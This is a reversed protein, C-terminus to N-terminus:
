RVIVKETFIHQGGASVQLLYIGPKLIGNVNIEKRCDDSCHITERFVCVGALDRITIERADNGEPWEIMEVNLNGESIPNPYARIGAITETEKASDDYSRTFPSLHSGRIPRELTGDPMLWGVSVHDTGIGQKHLVEVYYSVGEVLFIPQSHQRTVRDWERYETARDLHAIREINEPENNTSLWLESHDNSAIWFVYEGTQPPCIYGSIRAGYNIGANVPGEFSPLSESGDPSAELPIESTLNGRVDTWYERTITGSSECVLEDHFPLINTRAIPAEFIGSPLQWAVTFHDTGMGQKHLAEIYYKKGAELQISGSTQSAYKSWEDPETFGKIWAIRYKSAPNEDSGIWLESHDNSTISFRYVGSVSPRIYGRIRAGYNNGSNPPSAFTEIRERVDPEQNFPISLVDRGNIDHWVERVLYHETLSALVDIILTVKVVEQAPDNTKFLIEGAILGESLTSDVRITVGLPSSTIVGTAPHIAAISAIERSVEAKYSVSNVGENTLQITHVSSTGAISQVFVTDPCSFIAGSDYKIISVPVIMPEEQFDAHIYITDEFIGPPGDYQIEVVGDERVNLIGSSPSVSLGPLDHTFSLGIATGGDNRILLESTGIEDKQLIMEVSSLDIQYSTPGPIDLMVPIVLSDADDLYVTLDCEYTGYKLISADLLVSVNEQEGQQLIGEAPSVHVFSPVFEGAYLRFNDIDFLPGTNEMPSVFATQGIVAALGTGSFVHSNNVFLHYTPFGSTDTGANNYEIAIDFYGSPLSDLARRWHLEYESDIVMADLTGDANFRLRTAIFSWPDQPILEWTTGRANDANIRATTTTYQPYYLENDEFLYPSICLKEGTGSVQSVGRLHRTGGDPNANTVVWGQTAEWRDQGNIPGSTFLEFDTSYNPLQKALAMRGTSSAKTPTTSGSKIPLALEREPTAAMFREQLERIKQLRTEQLAGQAFDSKKRALNEESRSEALRFNRATISFSRPQSGRNYIAISRTLTMSRELTERIFSPSTVVPAELMCDGSVAIILTPRAPDNTSIKIESALVGITTPAFGIQINTTQFPPVSFPLERDVFFAEYSSAIATVKLPESGDNRLQVERFTTQGSQVTKFSISDSAISAIPVGNNKVTLVLEVTIKQRRPDNSQIVLQQRYTGALKESADFNVEVRQQGGPAVEGEQMNTSAFNNGRRDEDFVYKLVGKGTNKITFSRTSQEATRLNVKLEAPNVAMAPTLASKQKVINSINSTNGEIDMSKIAAYYTIGGPLNRLTFTERSGPEKPTPVQTARTAKEFNESTIPSQSYRLDYETVFDADDSPSTWSLTIEGVDIDEVTLDAIATPPSNDGQGLARGANLRGSGLKGAYSPNGTDLEDSSLVLRTRVVDPSLGPKGYKSVILAATASVHPCAMSTGMFSGYTGNTLTSIVGESEAHDTEGGPASIDVWSGYNSYHARKDHHNTSAVAIVPEYFSPYYNGEDNFNGASFIALGGNMPGVQRGSEDKGAEDIFYDIADLVVQEFIGPVTYGWSSQAIVAGNDAAYVYAQAFGDATSDYAFVACSMVRIGDGKGSGGAVGAVGIGNNSTAALIGAVHTGHDHPLIQGSNNVFGYGHIDDVYGNNDDDMGNGPIEDDNVWMNDKLDPHDTQVGGDTVAVIVNPSGTEIKWADFLKIDAGPSGGSQGTNHYHWQGKLLPDDSANPLTNGAVRPGFEGAPSSLITKKYVAEARLIEGHAKYSQIASTIPIGKDLRIEYWLHLGHKRHRAEFKGAHPFVRTLQRVGLRRSINDLPEIGTIVDGTPSRSLNSQELRTALSESVRIRMLGPVPQQANLSTSFILTLIAATVFLSRSLQCCFSMYNALNEVKAHFITGSDKM